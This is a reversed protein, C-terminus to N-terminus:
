MLASAAPGRASLRLWCHRHGCHTLAPPCALRRGVARLDSWARKRPEGASSQMTSARTLGRWTRERPSAQM